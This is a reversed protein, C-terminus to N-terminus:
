CVAKFKNAGILLGVKVSVTLPIVGAIITKRPSAPGDRSGETRVIRYRRHQRTRSRRHLMRSATDKIEEWWASSVEKAENTCSSAGEDQIRIQSM